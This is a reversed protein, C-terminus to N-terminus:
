KFYIEFNLPKIRFIKDDFLDPQKIYFIQEKEKGAQYVFYIYYNTLLKSKNLENDSIYFKKLGNINNISKVEIQKENGNIEFSLIDYGKAYDKTVDSIKNALDVRGKQTLYEVEYKMVTEEAMKGSIIQSQHKKLFDVEQGVSNFERKNIKKVLINPFYEFAEPTREFNSTSVANLKTGCIWLFSHADILRVEGIEKLDLFDKVKEIIYNYYSYNNWDCKHSTKFNINLLKFITDFTEPAIPMYKRDNKLYLLYAILPYKKGIIDIISIFFNKDDNSMFLDYILKEVKYCLTTDKLASKLKYHEAQTEGFRPEWRVLNNRFKKEKIEIALIIYKLIKGSGLDKLKWKNVNLRNLAEMRLKIKYNEEKEIFAHSFSNFAIGTNKELYSKFNIFYDEIIKYDLLPLMKSGSKKELIHDNNNKRNDINNFINVIRKEEVIKHITQGYNFDFKRISDIKIFDVYILHGLNNPDYQYLKGEKKRVVAYGCIVLTPKGRILNGERKIAIIDGEKLNLFKKLTSYSAIKEGKNKLFKIIKNESTGVFQTLDYKRAFGVSVAGAKTMKRFVSISNGKGYKSGLIYYNIENKKLNSLKRNLVSCIEEPILIGSSQSEWKFDDFQLNKLKDIHLIKKDEFNFLTEFQIKIYNAMIKKKKKEKDWHVDKYTGKTVIGSGIIGRPEVGLRIFFFKDGKIINKRNGCSWRVKLLNHSKFYKYESRFESWAYQKPNWTILYTNM